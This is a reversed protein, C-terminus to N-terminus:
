RKKRGVNDYKFGMTELDDMRLINRCDLLVPSKLLGKLKLLDLGRFENWETMIVLPKACEERSPSTSTEPLILHYQRYNKVRM